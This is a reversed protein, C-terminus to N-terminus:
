EVENELDRLEDRTNKLREELVAVLPILEDLKEGDSKRTM